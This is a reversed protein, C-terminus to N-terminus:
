PAPPTHRATNRTQGCDLCLGDSHYHSVYVLQCAVCVPKPSKEHRSAPHSPEWRGPKHTAQAFRAAAWARLANLDWEPM